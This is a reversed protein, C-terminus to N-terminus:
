PAPLAEMAYLALSALVPQVTKQTLTICARQQQSFPSESHIRTGKKNSALQPLADQSHCIVVGRKGDLLKLLRMLLMGWQSDLANSITFHKPSAIPILLLTGIRPLEQMPM